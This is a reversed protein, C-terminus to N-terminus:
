LLCRLRPLPDLTLSLYRVARWIPTRKHKGVTNPNAGRELLIQVCDVHGACAAESLSTYDNEDTEDVRVKISTDDLIKVIDDKEGDFAAEIMDAKAKALKKAAERQRRERAVEQQYRRMEDAEKEDEIAKLAAARRAEAEEKAKVAAADAEAKAKEAAEIEEPTPEPEPEPEPVSEAKKKKGGKKKPGAKGAWGAAPKVSKGKAGAVSTIGLLSGKKAATGAKTKAAGVDTKAKSAPGGVKAKSATGGVKAKVSLGTKSKATALASTPKKLGAAAAKEKAVQESIPVGTKKHEARYAAIQEETYGAAKAEAETWGNAEAPISAGTGM